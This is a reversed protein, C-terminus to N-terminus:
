GRLVAVVCALGYIVLMAWWALRVIPRAPQILTVVVLSLLAGLGALGAFNAATYGGPLLGVISLLVSALVVTLLLEALTFQFRDEARPEHEPPEARPYVRPQYDVLEPDPPVVPYTDDPEEPPGAGQADDSM